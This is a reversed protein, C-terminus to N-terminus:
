FDGTVAGASGNRLRPPFGLLDARRFRLFITREALSFRALTPECAAAPERQTSYATVPPNVSARTRRTRYSKKKYPLLSPSSSEAARTKDGAHRCFRARGQAAPHVTGTPCSKGLIGLPKPPFNKTFHATTNRSIWSKAKDRSHFQNVNNSYTHM